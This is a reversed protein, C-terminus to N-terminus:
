GCGILSGFLCVCDFLGLCVFVVLWCRVSLLLCAVGFVRSLLVCVCLLVCGVCLLHFCICLVVCGFVCWVM